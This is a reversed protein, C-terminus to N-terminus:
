KNSLLKLRYGRAEEEEVEDEEEEEEECPAARHRIPVHQSPLLRKSSLLSPELTVTSFRCASRAECHASRWPCVVQAVHRHQVQLRLAGRLASTTTSVQM